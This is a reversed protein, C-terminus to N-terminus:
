LISVENNSVTIVFNHESYDESLVMDTIKDEYEKEIARLIPRAGFEKNPKIKNLIHKLANEDYTVTLGVDEARKQLKKMELDIIKLLNEETLDNFYIIDDLRNLFEPPFKKKLEKNLITKSYSNDDDSFGIGKGMTAAAKTGINSTLIIITNKFDVKQGTNDTLFGEDFVQLFLNYVDNDAKEIEDLLIVCHKKNKVQETMVGGEDYGVYGASAGILKNVSTKDSYESMDFRIMADEDGFLEKALKKALLTKGVGSKGILLFSGYTKGNKLGIRNRKIARCIADIAEDQGIVDDKIRENMSSIHRKDDVTLKSIPIGTKNSIVETIMDTTIVPAGNKKINEELTKLAQTLKLSIKKEEKSLNDAEDYRDAKKLEAIQNRLNTIEIRFDTIEKSNHTKINVSSGVEDLIDIASDPLNRETIYKQSLEVCADIAEPSYIVHHYKEYSTKITNIIEISEAKTPPEIVIKQFKRALSPNKDFTNRYGKFDTTGIVQLDGNEMSHSLMSAIDFENEGSRSDLVASINDILLIYKKNNKIEDLLKKVREEFMGRLTTGAILSTMDLEVITKDALINPASGDLILFALGEAICTKGAGGDGVLIVNNKKRRGMVRIINEIEKERGVLRDIKGEEALRNVNICFLDVPTKGKRRGDDTQPPTNNIFTITAPTSTGNGLDISIHPADKQKTLDPIDPEDFLPETTNRNANIKSLLINYEVGAKNFIKKVKNDNSKNNLIALFVHESTIKKDGMKRREDDAEALITNFLADYKVERQPRVGNVRKQQVLQYYANFLTDMTMTTLNDDLRRYIFSDRQQLIALIFYELTYSATPMDNLMDTEMFTILRQLEQSFNKKEM